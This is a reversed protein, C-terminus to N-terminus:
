GSVMALLRDRNVRLDHGCVGGPCLGKEQASRCNFDVAGDLGSALLGAFVRVDFEARTQADLWSWREGWSFDAEYRSQVVAAIDRPQMGEALLFRTVDQVFAPQLLRDNPAVLPRVICPPFRSLPLSRFLDNRDKDGRPPTAYFSRHFQGLRSGSYAALLRRVGETVVPLVTSGSQAARGALRIDRGACVLPTLSDSVRPVAVLAARERAVRPGAVDPRFRHKQYAGFAVRMHRVDMPDGGYSLDLSICERGVLGSGVVTGNLVIPLGARRAARRLILHALFEVLMSAGVYARAHRPTVAATVWRPQRNRVGALWRPSDPLLDALRDIVDSDLPVRGTFHYGQGTMLPLLPLDFRRLLHRVARFVAELKFLVDVPHHYAEGPFDSNQYDIDLHILLSSTDWTSRTIDAGAAMLHELEGLPYRPARDWTVSPAEKGTIATLYVCTPAEDGSAGCYERIRQRVGPGAYYEDLTTTRPTGM